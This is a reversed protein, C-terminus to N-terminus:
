RKLTHCLGKHLSMNLVFSLTNICICSPCYKFNRHVVPLTLYCVTSKYLPNSAAFSFWIYRINCILTHSCDVGALGSVCPVPWFWGSVASDPNAPTFYMSDSMIIVIGRTKGLPLFTQGSAASIRILRLGSQGSNVRSFNVVSM